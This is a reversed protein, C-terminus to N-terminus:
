EKPLKLVKLKFVLYYLAHCAADCAHPSKPIYCGYLKLRKTTFFGKLMPPQEKYPIELIECLAKLRGIMQVPQVASNTHQELHSAFIRYSEIIVYTDKQYKTLLRKL